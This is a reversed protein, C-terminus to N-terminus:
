NYKVSCGYPSTSSVAVAAKGSMAADLVKVVYNEAGNITAPDASSNSDIAGAYVVVGGPNIIFMHPTTKAGYTMGMTGDADLLLATPKMNVRKIQDIAKTPDVYGQKGKASSAVTLWKVGAATYKQQLKQMNNSSYHKKVYPCGENFWELVLWSGKFENLSRMKGNQDQEMFSPAPAGVKIESFAMPSALITILLVLNKM